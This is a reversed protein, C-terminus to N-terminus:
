GILTAVSALAPAFVRRLDSHAEAHHDHPQGYKFEYENLYVHKRDGPPSFHSEHTGIRPVDPSGHRDCPPEATALM